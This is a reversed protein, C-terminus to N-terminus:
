RREREMAARYERVTADTLYIRSMFWACAGAALFFLLSIPGIVSMTVEYFEPEALLKWAISLPLHYIKALYGLVTFANGFVIAATAFVM